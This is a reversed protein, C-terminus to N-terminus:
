DVINAQQPIYSTLTRWVYANVKIKTNPNHRSMIEFEVLAKTVTNNASVGVINGQIPSKKLGLEQCAGETILLSQSGQDVLARLTHISNNKHSQVAVLATALIVPSTDISAKMTISDISDINNPEIFPEQIINNSNTNEITAINVIQNPQSSESTPTTVSPGAPM